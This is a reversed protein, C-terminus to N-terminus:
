DQLESECLNVKAIIKRIEGVGILKCCASNSETEQDKNNEMFGMKGMTKTAKWAMKWNREATMSPADPIQYELTLM